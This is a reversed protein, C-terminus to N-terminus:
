KKTEKLLSVIMSVIYKVFLIISFFLTTKPVIKEDNEVPIPTPKVIVVDVDEEVVVEIEEDNIDADTSSPPTWIELKDASEPLRVDFLREIHPRIVEYRHEYIKIKPGFTLKQILGVCWEPSWKKLNTELFFKKVQENAKTPNNAAFSIYASRTAGAWGSSQVEVVDGFLIKRADNMVFSMLNEKIYDIQVQQAKATQWVNAMCAAWLKAHEVAEPTWSEKTGSCALFLEKKKTTTDVVGRSDTFYFRWKGNRDRKFTCNSRKMADELPVLVSEIGCIEAVRGLLISVLNFRECYQIMGVSIICSDYMNVSNINGETKSIIYLTKEQFNPNPPLEYKITGKFYPGSNSSYSGWGIMKPTIKM